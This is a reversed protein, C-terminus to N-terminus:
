DVPTPPGNEVYVTIVEKWLPNLLPNTGGGGHCRKYYRNFAHGGHEPVDDIDGDEDPDYTGGGCGIRQECAQALGSEFPFCEGSFGWGCQNAGGSGRDGAPEACDRLSLASGDPEGGFQAEGRCSWGVVPSAGTFINGYFVGEEKTYKSVEAGTV